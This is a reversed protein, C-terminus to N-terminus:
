GRGPAAIRAQSHLFEIVKESRIASEIRDLGQEKTLRARVAEPTQNSSQALREIESAVEEETSQLNEVKAIRELLLGLKLDRIAGERQDRRVKAWDVQVQQPDIGQAVLARVRRELRMDIQHQVLAEPLPFEHRSLLEDLLRQQTLEKEQRAAAQQMDQRLKQTLEQVTKYNGVQQAFEDDLAPLQKRRVAKVRATFAVTQGALRADPYGDPYPANFQREEEARVGQLGQSFAEMTGEEGLHVEVEDLVLPERKEKANTVVGVLSAVVTDGDEAPRDEVPVYTAAQERLRELEQEVDQDTVEVKAAEVSLGKFEGLTFEPLVEFSAKFRLPKAPEFQLEAISPNGVPNLNGERFANQLSSPILSHLVESKIDDWFRRRVLEAPAKGPRFGPIRALRTFERTVRQTEKEVVEAPIEIELERQCTNTDPTM